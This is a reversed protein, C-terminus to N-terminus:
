EKGNIWNLIEEKHESLIGLLETFQEAHLTVGKTSPLWKGDKDYFKRVDLYRSNKYSSLNVFVPERVTAKGDADIGIIGLTKNEDAM